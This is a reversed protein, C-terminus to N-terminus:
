KKLKELEDNLKHLNEREVQILSTYLQFYKVDEDDPKANTVVAELLASQSRSRKKELVEIERESEAILKKLESKKSM